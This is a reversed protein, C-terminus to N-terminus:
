SNLPVLVSEDAAQSRPDIRHKSWGWGRAGTAGLTWRHENDPKGGQTLGPPAPSAEVPPAALAMSPLGLLLAAAMIISGVRQQLCAIQIPDGKGAAHDIVLIQGAWLLACILTLWDGRASENTEYIAKIRPEVQALLHQTKETAPSAAPVSRAFAAAVAFTLMCRLAVVRYSALWAPYCGQVVSSDSPQLAIRM